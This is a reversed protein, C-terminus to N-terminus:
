YVIEIIHRVRKKLDHSVNNPNENILHLTAM